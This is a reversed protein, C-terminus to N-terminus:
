RYDSSSFSLFYWFILWGDLPFYHRLNWNVLQMPFGRIPASMVYNVQDAKSVLLKRPTRRRQTIAADIPGDALYCCFRHSLIITFVNLRLRVLSPLSRPTFVSVTLRDVSQTGPAEEPGNLRRSVLGITLRMKSWVPETWLFSLEGTERFAFFFNAFSGKATSLIEWVSM